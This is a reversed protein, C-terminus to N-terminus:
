SDEAAKSKKKKKDKKSKKEKEKQTEDEEDDLDEKKYKKDKKDKKSSKSKKDDKDKNKDKNGYQLNEDDMEDEVTELEGAYTNTVEGGKTSNIDGLEYAAVRSDKLVVKVCIFYTAILLVVIAVVVLVFILLVRQGYAGQFDWEYLRVVWSEHFEAVWYNFEFTAVMDKDPYAVMM